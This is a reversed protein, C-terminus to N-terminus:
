DTLRAGLVHLAAKIKDLHEHNLIEIQFEIRAERLALDHDMRNHNVQLINAGEKALVATLQSLSGPSDQFLVNLQARRGKSILGREIVMNINNLDINGGSMIAVCKKGLNLRGSLVAALAAAGSGEVVSKARELLLVIAEAIENDSVVVIDDVLRSIYEEFLKQDAKKVAIGDALSSYRTVEKQPKKYFLDFMGPTLDSQVGFIKCKPAKAKIVTAIGSILGGGGIPVVVSDVDDGLEALIELGITGQGAITMPDSFPHVFIYDREKMIEQARQYCEDFVKGYLIVEAGYDRTAQVKVLPSNLPMVITAKAGLQSSSYAVGQAHNGASCAILGKKRQEPSLSRINNYAGRIKFSGTKQENEMKLWVECNARKSAERSHRVHTSQIVKAIHEKAEIVDSITIPSKTKM